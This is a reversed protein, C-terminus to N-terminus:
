RKVHLKLNDLYFVARDTVTSVFELWELQRCQPDCPLKEFRQPVQGPLSVTLDSRGLYVQQDRGWAIIRDDGDPAVYLTAAAVFRCTLAAWVTIGVLTRSFWPKSAM